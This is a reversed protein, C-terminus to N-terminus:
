SQGGGLTRLREMREAENAMLWTDQSLLEWAQAFWTRAAVHDGRVLALEGLEEFVYGGPQGAAAREDALRTQIALAEDYRELARLMRAISWEAIWIPTGSQGQEQRWALGEEHLALAEEFNELDFYTWAINNLLSGMWRRADLDDSARAVGLAQLNWDLAEEGPAAIGLMHLADVHLGAADGHALARQAAAHFHPLSGPADGSSNHVRGTELAHRIEAVGGEPMIAAAQDLRARAAEVDGELGHTRAIQTLLEARVDDESARPDDLLAVFADRTGSTDRFNWVSRMDITEATM